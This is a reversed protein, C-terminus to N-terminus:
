SAPESPAGDALRCRLIRIKTPTGDLKAGPEEDVDLRFGADRLVDVAPDAIERFSDGIWAEGSPALHRSLFEAIPAHNRREYLLDSGVIRDYRRDLRTTRWDVRTIDITVDNRRANEAAFAIADDDYDTALPRWGARAAAISCLGLGCGIELLAGDATPSAFPERRLRRALLVATPWLDAWYPLYEDVDFREHVSADDLLADASAPAVLRVSDAGLAVDIERLAYGRFRTPDPPPADPIPAGSRPTDNASM